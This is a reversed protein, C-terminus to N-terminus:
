KAPKTTLRSMYRYVRFVLSDADKLKLIKTWFQVKCMTTTSMLFTILFTWFPGCASAVALGRCWSSSFFHCQNLHAYSVFLHVIFM